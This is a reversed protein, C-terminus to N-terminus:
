PLGCISQGAASLTESMEQETMVGQTVLSQSMHAVCSVYQGHNMWAVSSGHPGACPCAQVLSCGTSPDLYLSGVATEACVDSGDSVGDNDDDEDCADGQADGDFNAQDPNAVTRCNDDDKGDLDTDLDCRGDADSDTCPGTGFMTVFTSSFSCALPDMFLNASFNVDHPEASFVKEQVSRRFFTTPSSSPCKWCKVDAPLEWPWLPAGDLLYTSGDVTINSPPKALGISFPNEDSSGVYVITGSETEQVCLESTLWNPAASAVAPAMLMMVGALM